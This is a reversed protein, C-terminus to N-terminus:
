GMTSQSPGMPRLAARLKATAAELHHEVTRSSVAMVKAVEMQSLGDIRTLVFAKRQRLPLDDIAREVRNRLQRREFIRDPPMPHRLEERAWRETRARRSREKRLRNLARSKVAKLLFASVKRPHWETRHEWIWEIVEWAVAEAAADDHVFGLACIKMKEVHRSVLFSLAREDGQAIRIALHEDTLTDEHPGQPDRLGTM